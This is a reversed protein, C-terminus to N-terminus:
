EMEEDAVAVTEGSGISSGLKGRDVVLCPGLLLIDQNGRELESKVYRRIILVEPM